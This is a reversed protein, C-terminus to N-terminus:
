LPTTFALQSTVGKSCWQWCRKPGAGSATAGPVACKKFFYTGAPQHKHYKVSLSYSLCATRCVVGAAASLPRDSPSVQGARGKRRLVPRRTWAAQGDTFPHRQRAPRAAPTGATSSRTHGASHRGQPQTETERTRWSKVRPREGHKAMKAM